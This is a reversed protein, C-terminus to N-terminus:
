AVRQLVTSYGGKGHHLWKSVRAITTSSFGTVSQIESYPKKDALMRATQLRKAFDIIEDETLLDRLFARAEEPSKLALVAEVLARNEAKKWDM